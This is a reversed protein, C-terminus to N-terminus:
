VPIYYVVMEAMLTERVEGLLDGGDRFDIVRGRGGSREWGGGTGGVSGVGGRVEWVAVVVEVLWSKCDEVVM